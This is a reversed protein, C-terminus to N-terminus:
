GTHNHIIAVTQEFQSPVDYNDYFYYRDMYEREGARARKAWEHEESTRNMVFGYVSQHRKRCEDALSEMEEMTGLEPSYKESIVSRMVAM